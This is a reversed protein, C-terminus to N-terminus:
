TLWSSMLSLAKATIFALAFIWTINEFTVTRGRIQREAPVTPKDNIVPSAETPQAQRFADWAAPVTQGGDIPIQYRIDGQDIYSMTFHQQYIAGRSGQPNVPGVVYRENNGRIVVDRANLLPYCGTWAAWDYRIHLGMDALEVSKETEPPAILIDYPGEYGDVIGTGMCLRCDNHSQAYNYQYSPCKPGMWKRVFVKVREGGQELIWMNRKIAERWVWDIMDIDFASRDSIEDIPTEITKSADHPDVAVTTVKYFTRQNLVTLVSYRLYYYSIRVRGGPQRPLRPPIVQQLEQNYSPASILQIEGTVGNVAFAPVELFTGDGDDIEVKVDHISTSTQGNSNPHILPKHQAWVKWRGDPELDYRLTRTADEDVVVQEKTEDRYFLVTVPTDNIKEYPGFQADTSRYVNCGLIQLGSNQPIVRPNDWRVDLKGVAYPSTVLINRPAFPVTLDRTQPRLPYNFDPRDTQSLKGSHYVPM